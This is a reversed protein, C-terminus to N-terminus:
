IGPESFSSPDGKSLRSMKLLSLFKACFGFLCGFAKATDRYIFSHIIRLESSLKHHSMVTSVTMYGCMREREVPMCTHTNKKKTYRLMATVRHPAIYVFETNM